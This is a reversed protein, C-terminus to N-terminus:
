LYFIGFKYCCRDQNKQGSFTNTNKRVVQHMRTCQEYVFGDVGSDLVFGQYLKNKYRVIVYKGIYLVSEAINMTDIRKSTSEKTKRSEVAM